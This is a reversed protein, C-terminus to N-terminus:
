IIEMKCVLALSASLEKYKTAGDTIIKEIDRPLLNPNEAKILAAAGAVIPSAMSTGPFEEYRSSTVTSLIGGGLDDTGGPAAISM